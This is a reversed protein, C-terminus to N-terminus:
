YWRPPLGAKGGSVEIMEKLLKSSLREIYDRHEVETM